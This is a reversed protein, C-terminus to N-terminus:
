EIFTAMVVAPVFGLIIARFAPWGLAMVKKLNYVLSHQRLLNVFFCMLVSNPYAGSVSGLFLGVM